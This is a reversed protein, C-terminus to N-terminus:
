LLQYFNYENINESLLLELTAYYHTVNAGAYNVIRHKDNGNAATGDKECLVFFIDDTEEEHIVRKAVIGKDIEAKGITIVREAQPVIRKAYEFQPVLYKDM